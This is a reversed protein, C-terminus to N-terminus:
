DKALPNERSQPQFPAIITAAKNYLLADADWGAAEGSALWSM